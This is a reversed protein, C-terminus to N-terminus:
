PLASMLYARQEKAYWSWSRKYEKVMHEKMRRDGKAGRLSHFEGAQMRNWEHRCRDREAQLARLRDCFRRFHGAQADQLRGSRLAEAIRKEVETLTESVDQCERDLPGCLSDISAILDQQFTLPEPEPSSGELWAEWPQMQWVWIAAAALFLVLFIRKM